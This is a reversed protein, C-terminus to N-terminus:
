SSIVTSTPHAATWLKGHRWPIGADRMLGWCGVQNASLVPKGLDRQLRPLVEFTRLNTCALFVVEADPHDAKRALERVSERDVSSIYNDLGLYAGNVVDMGAENLFHVLLQTMEIDYPTGVAVRTVGLFRLADIVAGSVTIPHALGQEAMKDTIAREGDIGRMFSGSTCAYLTASPNIASLTQSEVAIDALHMLGTHSSPTRTICLTQGTHGLFRWYEEDIAFDAPAIIGLRGGQHGTVTVNLDSLPTTM